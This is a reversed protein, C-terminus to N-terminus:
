LWGEDDVEGILNLRAKNSDDAMDNNLRSDDEFLRDVTQHDLRTRHGIQETLRNPQPSEQKANITRITAPLVDTVSLRQLSNDVAAAAIAQEGNSYSGYNFVWVLDSTTFDGDGDWDGESFDSNGPIADEYEGAQFVLLLDSSDFIGDGNSDGPDAESGGPTGNITSSPRWSSATGWSALETNTADVIQLTRGEGDTSPYWSDDYSFQQLYVGNAEITLMEANNSLGGSWEGALNGGYRFQYAEADEAVVVSQGPGLNSIAGESFDFSVGEESDGVRLLKVAALPIIQDGINTLEIFEFDDSNDHGAAIEQANPDAPNYNIESVRLSQTVPDGATSNVAIAQMGILNGSFDIAEIQINNEGFSLPLQIRWGDATPWFADLNQESGVLRLQRINVWGKGELTLIDDETTFDQGNNTSISFDVEAIDNKLDRMARESRSRTSSTIGSFNEDGGHTANNFMAGYHLAWRSVYEATFSTTIFDHMHGWFLRLNHPIDRIEDLRSTSESRTKIPESFNCLDCDWFLPIMRDDSPRAYMRLNKPRRFGYTDWNGFYAQNAYHRMWLDVDMVENTREFLEMEDEVHIAQAMRRISDFDDKARNSKILLHARYFEPDGGQRQTMSRNGGIDRGTNVETNTKLGEVGGRPSTPVTVDDLEYKTGDSGDEFQENLYVNEYRAMQLIVEHNHARNPSVIFAADDYASAKSDGARNLMQKMVIEAMGNLDFRVSDHVGYFLNDPNFVIKYGSNPRIWRSGTQRTKIDYFVDNNHVLTIGRVQNSMRNTTDFLLDYQDDRMVIRFRDIPSKPTINDEVQYLAHSDAGTAPFTSIVGAGDRGEVYFQVVTGSEHPPIVAEYMGSNSQVMGATNWSKKDERWWLKMETVGDPDAARVRVTVEEKETPTTPTHRFERYTPGTNAVQTSNEAGPTGPRDPIDLHVTNGLRSFWLRSNIQSNGTIWKARFSLEYEAGDDIKTNDIFTTEAHDHVHAQAGTAVVHLVKNGEDDVVTGSHNGILRWKEPSNGISDGEFSGNQILQIAQGDPDETVQIDDILFEGKSLLGFVFENFLARGYIDSQSIGRYSHTVWEVEASDDSEAWVEGMSNDANPDTLELSVAGGDPRSPWRSGGEYYHVDDAPNKNGDVLLIRDDHDSLLGSFDGIIRIDSYQQSLYEADKAIILYEGPAMQTEAPFNYSIGGEIKWDSLDVTATGKNYLEIWEGEPLERFPRGPIIESTKTGRVLNAGFVIDSDSTNRVHVEASLINKGVKLFDSSVSIPGLLEANRTSSPAFTDADIDAPLNFRLIENGNLYIVAGDDVMHSLELLEISSIQENSLEFDTQFYYTAFSPNNASPRPFETNIPYALRSTEAGLPAAGQAWGNPGVTYEQQAWNANLRIGTANYRWEDTMSVIDERDYQAPIDSIGLEPHPHYMIENIVIDDQFEFRNEAGPTVISPYLWDGDHQVSRGRLRGTVRRSDSIAEGDASFITLRQTDAPRFGLQAENIALLAGPALTQNELVYEGGDTSKISLGALDVDASGVNILEVFFAEADHAAVENFAITPKAKPFIENDGTILFDLLLDNGSVSSNMGQIALINPGDSTLLNAHESIDFDVYSVALRDSHSSTAESNWALTDTDGDRGPAHDSAIEVGNLYAVFGDDYRARLRLKDFAVEGQVEFPIRVYVSPNIDEMPIAAQGNPPDDLDLNLLPDYTPTRASDFGVGMNGSTWGSDDFDNAIWRDGLDGNAPVFAKATSGEALLETSRFTGPKVFNDLGPTGGVELSFTWNEVVDSAGFQDGKSLSGGAGDAASPWPESDGYDVVNMLREDNNYLRLEEGSNSLQGSWPGHAGTIGNAALVTPDAAILLTSRGPVITEDPFTYDVGGTLVWESIDMDLSLQNYLEIWETQGDNEGVPNFMIENFVVTSDLVIRAELNEVQSFSKRIRRTSRSKRKRSIM